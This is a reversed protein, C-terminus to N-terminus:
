YVSLILLFAKVCAVIICVLEGRASEFEQASYSASTPFVSCTPYPQMYWRRVQAYWNGQMANDISFSSIGEM